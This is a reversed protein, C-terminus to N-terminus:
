YMASYTFVDKEEIKHAVFACEGGVMIDYVVVNNLLYVNFISGIFQENYNKFRVTEGLKYKSNIEVKEKKKKHIFFM